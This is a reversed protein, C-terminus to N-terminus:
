PLSFWLQMCASSEMPDTERLSSIRNKITSSITSFIAEQSKFHSRHLRNNRERWLEHILTQWSLITLYRLRNDGTYHILGQLTDDWDDSIIAFQLKAALNRWIGSSFSCGFYIHNKSEPLLNCLLCLPDTQLGWSLLRDRTPCRNLVFMWTLTKCKPIGKKLWVVHHWPVLPKSERIYNYVKASVFKNNTAPTTGLRSWEPMDEHESLSVTSLFIQIQEMEQSRAPGIDWTEGVWLSALSSSLPIGYQRPGNHGVFKILQGFPSWPTTWFFISNGNGPLIRM